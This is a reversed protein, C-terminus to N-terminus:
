GSLPGFAVPGVAGRVHPVWAAGERIAPVTLGVHDTGVLGLRGPAVHGALARPAALLPASAVGAIVAGSKILFDRRGIRMVDSVNAEEETDISRKLTRM